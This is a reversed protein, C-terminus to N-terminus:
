TEKVILYTRSSVIEPRWTYKSLNAEIVFLNEVSTYNVKYEIM